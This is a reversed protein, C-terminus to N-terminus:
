GRPVSNHVGITGTSAGTDVGALRSSSRSTPNSKMTLRRFGPTVGPAAARAHVRAIARNFSPLAPGARGASHASEPATPGNSSIAQAL